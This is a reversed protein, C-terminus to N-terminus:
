AVVTFLQIGQNGKKPKYVGLKDKCYGVSEMSELLKDTFVPKKISTSNDINAQAVGMIVSLHESKSAKLSFTPLITLFGLDSVLHLSLTDPCVSWSVVGKRSKMLGQLAKIPRAQYAQYDQVRNNLNEAIIRVSDLSYVISNNAAYIFDSEMFKKDALIQSETNVAKYVYSSSTYKCGNTSSTFASPMTNPTHTVLDFEYGAYTVLYSTSDQSRVVTVEARKCGAMARIKKLAVTENELIQITM